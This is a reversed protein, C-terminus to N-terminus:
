IKDEAKRAAELKDIRDKYKEGWDKMHLIVPELTRGFETLSYEVKPPVQKYVERHIVGDRELERLQLTLMRQTIKPYLKRFENFRKKGDILHYLLIGKWKGGIIDLTTEVPCGEFDDSSYDIGLKRNRLSNM